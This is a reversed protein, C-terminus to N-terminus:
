VNVNFLAHQEHKHIAYHNDMDLTDHIDHAKMYIVSGSITTCFRHTQLTNMYGNAFNHFFIHVIHFLTSQCLVKLVRVQPLALGSAMNSPCRCLEQEVAMNMVKGSAPTQITQPLGANILAKSIVSRAM